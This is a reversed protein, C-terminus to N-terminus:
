AGILEKYADSSLLEEVETADAIKVKIM